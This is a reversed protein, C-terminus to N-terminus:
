VLSGPARRRRETAIPVAARKRGNVGAAHRVGPEKGRGFSLYTLGAARVAKADLANRGDLVVDGRMVRAIRDWRLDLYERWETALLLADCDSAADYADRCCVVAPILRSANPMALPDHARVRIGEEVLRATIDLAASGRIDDTGPKYALGLVGVVPDRRRRIAECLLRFAMERRKVNVQFVADLVPTDCGNQRAIQVLAPVDKPLCSGGWGLGAKLHSAGIRSDSGLVREVEDIDAGMAGCLVSVENMFSIRTALFANAAYKALEASRRSCFVVPADIDNYLRAVRKAADASGAGIVIRDPQLCDRVATGQSLFEPNCVIEVREGWSRRLMEDLTDTTGVPVTSKMVLIAGWAMAPFLDRVAKMVHTTDSEGNPGSPTQVAIFVFRAGALAERGNDTFRLRGAPRNAAVLEDLGPEYFPLDGARLVALRLPDTELVNVCHGLEALCAATVLGVHGAGVVCVQESGPRM